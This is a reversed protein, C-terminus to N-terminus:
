SRVAVVGTPSTCITLSDASLDAPQVGLVAALRVIHAEDTPKLGRELLSIYQQKFGARSALEAQSIRLNIRIAALQHLQQIM